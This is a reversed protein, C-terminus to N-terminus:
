VNEKRNQNVRVPHVLIVIHFISVYRMKAEPYMLVFAVLTDSPPTISIMSQLLFRRTNSASFKGSM